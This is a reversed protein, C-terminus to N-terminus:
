ERPCASASHWRKRCTPPSQKTRGPAPSWIAAHSFGTRTAARPQDGALSIAPWAAGGDDGKARASSAVHGSFARSRTQMQPTGKSRRNQNLAPSPALGQASPHQRVLLPIPDLAMKRASRPHSSAAAGVVPQEHIRDQPHSSVRGAPTVQRLHEAFPAPDMCPEPPPRM